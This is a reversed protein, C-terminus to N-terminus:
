SPDIDLSVALSEWTGGAPCVPCKWREGHFEAMGDGCHPCLFADPDVATSVLARYFEERAKGQPIWSM